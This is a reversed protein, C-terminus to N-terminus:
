RNQLSAEHRALTGDRRWLGCTSMTGPRTAGTPYADVAATDAASRAQEYAHKCMLIPRDWHYFAVAAITFVVLPVAITGIIM